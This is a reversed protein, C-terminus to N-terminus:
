RADDRIKRHSPSGPRSPRCGSEGQPACRPWQRGNPFQRVPQKFQGLAALAASPDEGTAVCLGAAVLANSAMFDGALPLRLQTRGGASEVVIRTAGPEAHASILRLDAGNRGTTFVRLGRAACHAVVRHSAESDADVVATQGPALLTDFLRLKAALYDDLTRHYDLHDRSLNTFAGASLRAGDLRRQDLGHSSAEMALHTVGERALEDLTAHLAVPDPTTLAGYAAGSPKVVGTTGLAAAARGLRKWIQRTFAATSTKGSTGTIAVIIEPQRPYFRAAARSLMVRVDPARVFAAGTLPSAPEREAVVAIAGSALASAAYALGDAKAGPIAFFVYGPKVARSDATLGTAELAGIEPPLGADPLM